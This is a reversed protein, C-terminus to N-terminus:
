VSVFCFVSRNTKRIGMQRWVHCPLHYSSCVMVFMVMVSACLWRSCWSICCDILYIFISDKGKWRVATCVAARQSRGSFDSKESPTQEDTNKHTSIDVTAWMYCDDCLANMSTSALFRSLLSLPSSALPLPKTLVSTERSIWLANHWENQETPPTEIDNNRPKASDFRQEAHALNLHFKLVLNHSKASTIPEELSLSPSVSDLRPLCWLRRKMRSETNERATTFGQQPCAARIHYSKDSFPSYVPLKLIWRRQFSITRLFTAYGRPSVFPCMPIM